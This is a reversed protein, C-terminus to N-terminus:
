RQWNVRGRWILLTSIIGLIVSLGVISLFIILYIDDGTTNIYFKVLGNAFAVFTIIFATFTSAARRAKWRPLPWLLEWIGGICIGIIVGLGLWAVPQAFITFSRGEDAFALGWFLVTMGLATFYRCPHSNFGITGLLWSAVLWSAVGFLMYPISDVMLAIDSARNNKQIFGTFALLFMFLYGAMLGVRGPVGTRREKSPTLAALRGAAGADTGPAMSRKFLPFAVISLLQFACGLLLHYKANAGNFLLAVLASVALLGGAVLLDSRASPHLITTRVFGRMSAPTDLAVTRATVINRLLIVNLGLSMCQLTLFLLTMTAGAPIGFPDWTADITSVDWRIDIEPMNFLYALGLLAAPFNIVVTGIRLQNESWNRANGVLLTLLTPVLLTGALVYLFDQEQALDAGLRLFVTLAVLTSIFNAALLGAPIATPVELKKVFSSGTM